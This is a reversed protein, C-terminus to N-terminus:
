EDVPRLSHMFEDFSDAVLYIDQWNMWLFIAGPQLGALALYVQNGGADIAIPLLERPPDDVETIEEDIQLVKRLSPAYEIPFPAPLGTREREADMEKVPWIGQFM